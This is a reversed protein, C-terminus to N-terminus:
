GRVRDSFPYIEEDLVACVIGSQTGLRSSGPKVSQLAGYCSAHLSNASVMNPANQRLNLSNLALGM